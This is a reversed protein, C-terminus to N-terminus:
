QVPPRGPGGQGRPRPAMGPQGPGPGQPGMMARGGNRQRMRMGQARERMGQGRDRMERGRERMGGQRRMAGGRSMMTWAQAQQDPTLVAIADRLDTRAQERAQTLRTEMQPALQRPGASDRRMGTRSRRVSDVTTMLAKRRAGERRAIAALRVVQQDTLQLDGTHSLLFSAGAMPGLGAPGPGQPPGGPGPMPQQASLTSGAVFLAAVAFRRIHQQM